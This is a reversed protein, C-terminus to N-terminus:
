LRFILSFLVVLGLTAVAVYELVVQLYLDRHIFHHIVGWVIYAVSVAIAVASQFVKDYSFVAFALMGAWLIGFLSLYHPLDKAVKYIKM